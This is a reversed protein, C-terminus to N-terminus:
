EFFFLPTPTPLLGWFSTHCMPPQLHLLLLLGPFRLSNNGHLVTVVYLHVMGVSESVEKGKSSLVTSNFASIQVTSGIEQLQLVINRLSTLLM